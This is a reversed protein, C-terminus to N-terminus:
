SLAKNWIWLCAGVSSATFAIIVILVLAGLFMEGSNYKTETKEAM